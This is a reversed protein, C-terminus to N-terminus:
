ELQRDIEPSRRSFRFFLWIAVFLAALEAAAAAAALNVLPKGTSVVWISIGLGCARAINSWLSISSNGIAMACMIPAIRFIGFAQSTGLFMLVPTAASYEMGYFLRLLFPGLILFFAIVGVGSVGLFMYVQRVRRLYLQRDHKTSSLLPLSLTTGLRAIVVVPAYALTGAAAFLGLDFSTYPSSPFLQPASALLAREGHLVAFLLINSLMLPWGFQLVRRAIQPEWAWRYSTEAVVFSGLTTVIATALIGWMAASFHGTRWALLISVFAGAIQAVLEVSLDPGYRLDRQLLKRSLHSFGSLIPQVALVAFAWGYEPIGLLAAVPYAAFLIIGALLLGRIASFAHLTAVFKASAGDTAQIIQKDLGANGTMDLLVIVLLFMSSLGFQEPGLIRALAVSSVLRIVQWALSGLIVAIGGRLARKGQPHTKVRDVIGIAVCKMQM